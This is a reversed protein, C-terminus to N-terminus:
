DNQPENGCADFDDKLKLFAIVAEDNSTKFDILHQAPKHKGAVEFDETRSISASREFCAVNEVELSSLIMSM